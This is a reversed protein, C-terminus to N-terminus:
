SHLSSRDGEDGRPRTLVDILFSRRKLDLYLTESGSNLYYENCSNDKPTRSIVADHPFTQASQGM